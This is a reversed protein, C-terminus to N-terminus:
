DFGDIGGCSLELVDDAVSVESSEAIPDLGCPQANRKAISVEVVDVM